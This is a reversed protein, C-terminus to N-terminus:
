SRRSMECFLFTWVFERSRASGMHCDFLFIGESGRRSGCLDRASSVLIEAFRLYRMRAFGSMALV